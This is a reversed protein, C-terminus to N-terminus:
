INHKDIDYKQWIDLAIKLSKVFPVTYTPVMKSKLYDRKRFIYDSYGRPALILPKKTESSIEVLHELLYETFGPVQFYIAALIVDVEPAHDLIKIAEILRNNDCDGFLDLPNSSVQLFINEKHGPNYSHFRASLLGTLEQRTEKSFDALQMGSDVVQDALLIGAGGGVTVIAIRNDDAKKHTTLISLINVLIKPDESYEEILYFGAQECAAKFAQYSGALSATHSMTAASGGSVGGKIIIVPKEKSVSRGVEVFQPGNKIGELYITIIKIKPDKGMHYLLETVSIDTANGCSVWRGVSINDGALMELLELGIGGSQTIIGIGSPKKIVNTKIEPIFMTNVGSFNDILGLCNPGIFHVGSDTSIKKLEDELDKRGIEAFGDSIIIASKGGSKVFEHFLKVTMESNVAFIGLDINKPLEHISSYCKKGHLVDYKPNVPYLNEYDIMNRMITGGATGTVSAGFLAVKKPSFISDLSEMNISLKNFHPHLIPRGKILRVDVIKICDEYVIVPNLDLEIIDPNEDMLKSVNIALKIVHEKALKEHRYGNLIKNAKTYSLIRTVDEKSLVGVGPAADNLLEVYKGGMGMMTVPGYCADQKAGVLIEFGPKCMEQLLIYSGTKIKLKEGNRIMEEYSRILDKKDKINLNVLGQDSKHIIEPSILKIAVPYGIEDAQSLAEEINYVPTGLIYIRYKKLIEKCAIFDFQMNKM